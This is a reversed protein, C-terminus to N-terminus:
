DKFERWSKGDILLDKIVARGSAPVSVVIEAGGARVLRDLVRAKDEPIYFREIGAIFRRNRCAGRLVAECRDLNMHSCSLSQRRGDKGFCVCTDTDASPANGSIVDQASVGGDCVEGDESEYNVRYTLYHGSLLDRPDYGEIKLVVEKGQRLRFEHEVVVGILGVIPALVAAIFFGRTKM